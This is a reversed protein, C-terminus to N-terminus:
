EGPGRQEGRRGQLLLAPNREIEAALRNLKDLLKRVQAITENFQPVTEDAVAALDQRAESALQGVARSADTVTNGAQEVADLAARLRSELEPLRESARAANNSLKGVQSITQTITDSERALAASVSEVDDLIRSTTALNHDDLLKSVRGTVIKAQESVTELNALAKFVAKDLRLFLSPGTQIEPYTQGPLATLLASARGGGTLAIHAVGTLGQSSLVAVTDVKIATDPAIDLLLRVRSPDEQDLSIDRVRGVRVGNYRVPANPSLGTVSESMYASYTRYSIRREGFGLWLTVAIFAGALLVIFVGVVTYNVKTDM